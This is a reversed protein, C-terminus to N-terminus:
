NRKKSKEGYYVAKQEVDKVIISGMGIISHANISLREKILANIGLYVLKEIKVEAGLYVKPALYSFDEISCDRAIYCQSHIFCFNGITSNQGIYSQPGIFVGKGIKVDNGIFNDPHVISLLHKKLHIYKNEFYDFMLDMTKISTIAPLFYAKHIKCLEDLHQVDGLVPYEEIKKVDKYQNNVFGVIEFSSNHNKIMDLVCALVVTGNGKGGLIILKKM